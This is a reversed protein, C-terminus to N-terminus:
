DSLAFRLERQAAGREFVLEKPRAPELKADDDFGLLAM